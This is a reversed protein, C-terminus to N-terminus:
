KRKMSARFVGPTVGTFQKFVRTFHSQDAFGANASITALNSEEKVLQRCAFQVRLNQVYDSISQHYFQRFVRSLYVPHVGIQSAVHNIRLNQQFGDNLLDTAKQLWPPMVKEQLRRSQSVVALMELTLGEIALSSCRHRYGYERYLRTALWSLESGPREAASGPLVGVERLRELWQQKVEISFIRIGSPGIQDYHTIDPPHFITTLPKLIATRGAYFELYDGDLLLNFYALEHSHKPIRKAGDHKFESLIIGCSDYKHLIEGYFQGARLSRQHNSIQANSMPQESGERAM